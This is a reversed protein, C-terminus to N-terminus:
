LLAAASPCYSLALKAPKMSIMGTVAVLNMHNIQKKSVSCNWFEQRSCDAAQKWNNSTM